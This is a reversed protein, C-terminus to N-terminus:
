RATAGGSAEDGMGTFPRTRPGKIVSCFLPWGTIRQTVRFSTFMLSDAARELPGPTSTSAALKRFGRM